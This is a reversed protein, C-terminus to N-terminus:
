AAGEVVRGRGGRKAAYLAADARSLVDTLSQEADTVTATGISLATTPRGPVDDAGGALETLIRAASAACRAADGPVWVAFEDGGLRGTTGHGALRSAVEALVSDGAAHGFRDNVSKFHDVDCLLVSGLEGADLARRVTALWHRRNLVGTLDDVRAQRELEAMRASLDAGPRLGASMELIVDELDDLELGVAELARELLPEDPGTRVEIGAIEDAVIVCAAERSPIWTGGLGGHHAAIAEAVPPDLQSAVAVLGGAVAHDTGMLEREALVRGRGARDRAAARDAVPVGYALPLVLKGVDHLLGALHAVDANAGTREAIAQAGTAVAPAHLNMQGVSRGANGPAREFFGFTAAELALRAVAVRGLLTVASRISHVRLPRAYAASNAYRLLDAALGQDAELVAVMEGVGAEESRALQGVRRVTASLVPLRGLHDVARLLRPDPVAAPDPPQPSVPTEFGPEAAPRPVQPAGAFRVEGGRM